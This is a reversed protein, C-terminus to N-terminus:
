RRRRVRECNRAVRDKRDAIVTDRGRGCNVRDRRGDRADIRDGGSGGSLKDRGSSGKLRDRGGNGTISDNGSNGNVRDNGGGGTVRDGSSGASITDNSSGGSIRDRGREGNVRDRGAEGLISDNGFGGILRDASAGGRLRDNGLNGSLRDDGLGGVLLDTGDGGQGRDTGAGLDICDDGALGDVIDNGAEAFIRDARTTGVISNSAASGRMVNATSTPCDAFASSPVTRRPALAAAATPGLVIVRTIAEPSVADARGAATQHLPAPALVLLGTARAVVGGLLAGDMPRAGDAVYVVNGPMGRSLSEAAVANSTAYVDSGGLRKAGPLQGLVGDSVVSSNGIVLATNINLSTLAAQTEAPISNAGVFLFPLRRAAALGAAAAAPPSAPNAIVVADFAPTPPTGAKEAPTRQDLRTAIDAAIAAPSGGSIRTVQGSPVGAAQLDSVVQASLKSTDGVVYAGAPRIRGVEAKVSAPLGSAPSLLVPAPNARALVTGALASPTDNENVIVIGSANRSAPGTPCQVATCGPPNAPDRLGGVLAGENGAMYALKSLAVSREVANPADVHTKPSAGGANFNVKALYIDETDTDWNGERSDMWGILQQGGGITVSQPGYWWYGSPRTDWGVDVNISRDTVRLPSSFSSGGDTSYSYYTDGLRIDECFTHSHTCNREGPGQYWHRRDHWVVNVRGGPSVSVNPHRTQHTRAGPFSTQASVQKPAQWSQGGNTSRQLYVQSDPSIFHDAGAYGGPPPNPGDRGQSYVIYVNNNERSAALRPYSGGSSPALVTRRAVETGTNVGQAVNAPPDWQRTEPNWRATQILNTSGSVRWAVVVSRGNLVPKSPFDTVNTTPPTVNIPNSFTQGGNESVVSKLPLCRGTGCTEGFTDHAVVHIRDAGGAGGAPDVALGPRSWDPGTTFDLNGPGGQMAVVGPEWTAGGNTSRYLLVTPDQAFGAGARQATVATYVNQGSGFEISQNYAGTACSKLFPQENGTAAPPTLPFRASWSTGGNFSASAECESDHHEANVAVVHQPNAPNSQLGVQDKGRFPASDSNLRYNPSVRVEAEAVPVLGLLGVTATLVALSIWRTKM